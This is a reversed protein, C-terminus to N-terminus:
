FEERCSSAVDAEQFEQRQKRLEQILSGHEAPSEGRRIETKFMGGPLFGPLRLTNNTESIEPIM